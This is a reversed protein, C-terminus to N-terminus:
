LGYNKKQLEEREGAAAAFCTDQCTAIIGEDSGDCCDCIGDDVRSSPINQPKYNRNQCLFSSKMCASTGPEDSGDKCDCYGDNVSKLPIQVKSEDCLFNDSTIPQTTGRTTEIKDFSKIRENFVKEEEFQKLRLSTSDRKSDAKNNQKSNFFFFGKILLLKNLFVLLCTVFLKHNM